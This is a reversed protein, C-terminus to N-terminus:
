IKDRWLGGQGDICLYSPCGQRIGSSCRGYGCVPVGDPVWCMSLWIYKYNITVTYINNKIASVDTVCRRMNMSQKEVFFPTCRHQLRGGVGSGIVKPSSMM